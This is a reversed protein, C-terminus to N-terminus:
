WDESTIGIPAVQTRDSKGRNCRHHSPQQNSPEFELEPYKLRPFKHDMEFANPENAPADWDITAQGCIACPANVTKWGPKLAKRLERHKHSRGDAMLM